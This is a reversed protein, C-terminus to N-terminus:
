QADWDQIRYTCLLCCLVLEVAYGKYEIHEHETDLKDTM